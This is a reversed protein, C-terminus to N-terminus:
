IKLVNTKMIISSMKIPISLNKPFVISMIVEGISLRFPTIKIKKIRTIHIVM